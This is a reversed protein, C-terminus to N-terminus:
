FLIACLIWYLVPITVISLITTGLTNAVANETDGAYSDSFASALGATPMALAIFCGLIINSDVTIFLRLLHAIGVALVPVLVLKVISVYYMGRKAFLSLLHTEAMKMGLITMSIPTVINSFHGAFTAVEPVSAKINLINFLIGIIFAILVPNLM